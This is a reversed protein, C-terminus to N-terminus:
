LEDVIKLLNLKAREIMWLVEAGSAKSSYFYEEGPRSFGIVIVAILCGGPETSTNQNSM